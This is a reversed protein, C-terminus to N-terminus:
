NCNGWVNHLKVALQTILRRHAPDSFNMSSAEHLTSLFEEKAKPSLQLFNQGPTTTLDVMQHLWPIVSGLFRQELLYNALIGLIECITGHSLKELVPGTRDMLEILILEDGSFIAELFASDHDGTHLFHKVRRWLNNKNESTNHSMKDNCALKPPFKAKGSQSQVANQPNCRKAVVKSVAPNQSLKVAPDRWHELGQKVTDSPRSKACSTDDWLDKNNTSVASHRNTAEFSPRPTCSLFRPSSLSVTQNSKLFESNTLNTNNVSPALGVVIKDVTQELSLVKSQLQSLSCMSNGMLVQILDMLNSQKTEIELLQKRISALESATQSCCGHAPQSSLETVSSELSKRERIKKAFISEPDIEDAGSGHSVGTATLSVGEPFSHAVTVHKTEFSASVLDSVTSTEPIDDVPEYDYRVDLSRSKNANIREFTKTVCSGESEANHVDALPSPTKPLAVEIHWDRATSHERNHAYNTPTKTVALPSRKSSITLSGSVSSHSEGKVQRDDKWGGDKFTHRDSRKSGCFNEKTSSGAESPEPSEPGSVNKWCQIAQMASDRVPKVKDFRCLELSRICSARFSGLLPGGNVAIGALAVSAAKRTTWDSSKLADQICTLASVLSHETSTGGAQIISRVLEILAPKAMFHQNKLLKIIRTLLRMLVTVPPDNVNDIVKALCLASGIQVYRNQEGLAEFLPKALIAFSGGNEADFSSMISSLVGVAEVCADRVVSDTDKLRKVISGVMKGLYPGLIDGHFRALTGMIRICEKRVASKQESDTDIICSLFPGILDPNLGEAVKELEEAAIQYTDRDALKNLVLIVRHKLEFSIQQPNVRSAAKGKSHTFSKM